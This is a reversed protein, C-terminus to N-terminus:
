VVSPPLTFTSRASHMPCRAQRAVHGRAVHAQWVGTGRGDDATLSRARRCTRARRFPAARDAGRTVAHPPEPPCLGLTVPHAQWPRAPSRQRWPAFARAPLRAGAPVSRRPGRRSHRRPPAGPPVAGAYGASEHACIGVMTWNAQDARGPVGAARRARGDPLQAGPAPPQRRPRRGAPVVPARRGPDRRSRSRRIPEPLCTAYDPVKV